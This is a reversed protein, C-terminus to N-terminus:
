EKVTSGRVYLRPSCEMFIPEEEVLRNLKELLMSLGVKCGRFAMQDISTLPPQMIRNMMLNDFGCIAMDEPIRVKRENLAAVCGMATMDNVAIIATCDTGAQLMEQTLQYGCDFEYTNELLEKEEEAALVHFGDALGMEEMYSRAGEMRRLRADTMNLFPTSIFMIKKHGLSVLHEAALRGAAYSNLCVTDVDVGPHREGVIVTPIDEPIPVKPTMLSLVCQAGINRLYDFSQMEREESRMTNQLVVTLGMTQAFAEVNQVLFPYYLNTLTPVLLGVITQKTTKRRKKLQYGMREATKLVNARTEPSISIKTNNNLVISVTAQSVGAERAIDRTTIKM